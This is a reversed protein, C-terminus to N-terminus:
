SNYKKPELESLVLRNDQASHHINKSKDDHGFIRILTNIAYKPNWIFKLCILYVNVDLVNGAKYQKSINKKKILKCQFAYYVLDADFWGAGKYPFFHDTNIYYYGAEIEGDFSKVKDFVSYVPWGVTCIDSMLCSAYCKNYDYAHLKNSM